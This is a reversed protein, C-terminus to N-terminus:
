GQIIATIWLTPGDERGQAILVPLRKAIGSVHEL